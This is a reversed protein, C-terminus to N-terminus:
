LKESYVIVEGDVIEYSYRHYLSVNNMCRIYALKLVDPNNKFYAERTSGKGRGQLNDIIEMDLLDSKISGQNLHTANFKRLMHPRFRRYGGAYGLELYVNIFRFKKGIHDPTNKLLCDCLNFDETKLKVQAIFKVTEPNLFTYYPMDTKLRTLNCTFVVNDHSSLYKLADIFNDKNHYSQTGRFFMENTMSKAESRSSGSCLLVLIWMSLNDDAISLALRIEEKALLEGYSIRNHKKITKTNLPPIFPLDIRNYHYFTKIKTVTTSITNGVYNDILFNRFSLIRNYLRRKNEPVKDEQEKLAEDLLDSLSMDHFECYKSFASAYTKISSKSHGANLHFARILDYDEKYIM